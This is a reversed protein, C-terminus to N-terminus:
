KILNSFLSSTCTSHKSSEVGGDAAMAGKIWSFADEFDHNVLQRRGWWMTMTASRLVASESSTHTTRTGFRQVRQLPANSRRRQPQRATRAGRNALQPSATYLAVSICGVELRAIPRPRTSNVLQSAHSSHQCEIARRALCLLAPTICVRVQAAEDQLVNEWWVRRAM